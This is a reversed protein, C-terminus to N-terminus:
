ARFVPAPEIEDPLPFADIRAAHQFLLKLNFTVGGRWAPEIPLALTQSGASVLTAFPDLKKSRAPRTPTRFLRGKTAKRSKRAVTSM